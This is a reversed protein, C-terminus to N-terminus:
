QLAGIRSLDGQRAPLGYGAKGAPVLRGVEVLQNLVPAVARPSKLGLATALQVCSVTGNRTAMAIALEGRRQDELESERVRAAQRAEKQARALEAKIDGMTGRNSIATVWRGKADQFREYGLAFGDCRLDFNGRMRVETTRIPENGEDSRIPLALIANRAAAVFDGNGKIQDFPDKDGRKEADEKKTHHLLTINSGSIDGLRYWGRAFEAADRTKNPDGVMIRTLNDIVCVAAGWAKLEAGLRAEDEANPLNLKITCVDLNLMVREDFPAIGRRRCLEWIRKRLRREGDETCIVMVREGGPRGCYEFGLWDEGRAISIAMDLSCTTKGAKAPGAFLTPANRPILDRIIWDERDDDDPERDGLLAALGRCWKNPKARDPPATAASLRTLSGAAEELVEDARYFEGVVDRKAEDLAELARRRGWAIKVEGAYIAVNDVTPLKLACEGLYAVGGAAELHDAKALATEVTVLDIPDGADHVLRLARYIAQHRLDYFHEARLDGVASFAEGGKVLIGGIISQEAAAAFLRAPLEKSM